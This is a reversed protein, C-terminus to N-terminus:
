AMLAQEVNGRLEDINFPKIIFCYAGLSMAKERNEDSDYATLMIVIVDPHREKITKLAEIGNVQPMRIDLLVLDVRNEAMFKFASLASTTTAVDYRDKLVAKVVETIPIENDIILIKQSIM